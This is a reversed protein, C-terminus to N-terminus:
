TYRGFTQPVVLAHMLDARTEIVNVNNQRNRGCARESFMPTHQIRNAAPQPQQPMSPSTPPLGRTPPFEEQRDRTAFLSTPKASVWAEPAEPAARAEPPVSLVTKGSGPPANVYLKRELQNASSNASAVVEVQSPRLSSKFTLDPFTM